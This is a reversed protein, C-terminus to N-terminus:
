VVISNVYGDTENGANDTATETFSYTTNMIGPLVTYPSGAQTAAADGTLWSLDLTFEDGDAISVLALNDDYTVTDGIEAVGSTGNDTTISLTGPNTIIPAINDVPATDTSAASTASNTNTDTATVTFTSGVGNDDDNGALVTYAYSYIEDGIQTDGLTGTDYLPQTASGGFNTLNATITSVDTNGDGTAASNDWSFTIIDGIKCTGGIGTCASENATLNAATVKPAQGDSITKGSFPPTSNAGDSISAGAITNLTFDSATYATNNLSAVTMDITGANLGVASSTLGTASWGPPIPAGFLASAVPESMVINVKTDSKASASVFAPAAGDTFSVPVSTSSFTVSSANNTGDTVSGTTYALTLDGVDTKVTTTTFNYDCENSGAVGSNCEVTGETLGAFNASSSIAWNATGNAVANVAETWIVTILDLFGDVDPDYFTASVPIPKAGDTFTAHSQPGLTINLNGTADRLDFGNQTSIAINGSDESTDLASSETVLPITLTSTTTTLLDSTPTVAFAAGTFNGVNSLSLDFTGLVSTAVASESFTVFFQDIKGNSDNDQYKFDKIVPAAGDSVTAQSQAGSTTNINGDADQLSFNSKSSIALSGSDDYTDVATAETGLTITATSAALAKDTNDTGFLAGTFNGVNTFLLDNAALVSSAALTESFTLWLQDIKGDYVADTDQYKIDKIVPAAKDALPPTSGSNFSATVATNNAADKVSTGATYTLALDGLDTKVTTTTFNYDCENSAAPATNCIVSGEALNQFQDGASLIGWDATGNTVATLPESWTTTILNVKGDLNTDYLDASMPYPAAADTFAPTSSANFTKSAATNTLDTISNDTNYNVELNGVDTKLTSTSFSIYCADSPSAILGGCDVGSVSIGTFESGSVDWGNAVGTPSIEESWVVTVLDLRGNLNIDYFTASVPVPSAKDLEDLVGADGTAIARVESTGVWYETGIGLGNQTYTVELDPNATDVTLDSDNEDLNIYYVQPNATAASGLAVSSVTVANLNDTVAWGTKNYVHGTHGAPNDIKVEIRNIKGNANTDYMELSLLEGSAGDAIPPTSLSTLTKGPSQNGTSDKIGANATFAATLDGVTTNVTTCTFNVNLASSVAPDATEGTCAGHDSASTINFGNAGSATDALNETYTLALRDAIGDGNADQMTAATIVPPAADFNVVNAKNSIPGLLTQNLSGDADNNNYSTLVTTASGTENADAAVSIYVVSDTGNCDGEGTGEPNSTDIGTISINMYSGSAVFWDSAEYTCQDMTSDFTWKLHDVTGDADADIYVKSVLTDAAYAPKVSLGFVGAVVFLTLLLSKATTFQPFTSKTTVKKNINIRRIRLM